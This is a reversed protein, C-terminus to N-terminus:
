SDKQEINRRRNEECVSGDWAECQREERMMADLSLTLPRMRTSKKWHLTRDTRIGFM